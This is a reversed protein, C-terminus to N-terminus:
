VRRNRSLYTGQLDIGTIFGSWAVTLKVDPVDRYIPVWEDGSLAAGAYSLRSGTEGVVSLTAARTDVHHVCLSRVTTRGEVMVDGSRPDRLYFDDLTISPSFTVTGGADAPVGTAIDAPNSADLVELAVSSGRTLLLALKGGVFRVTHLTAGPFVWSHWRPSSRGNADRLYHCVYLKAATAVCLVGLSDDAALALPTGQLYTPVGETLDRVEPPQDAGPPRSYEFVRVAGNVTRLFYIRSGIVIPPVTGDNEFRSVVSFSITTPTVVPDGSLEMQARDSWFYLGGDWYLPTHFGGEPAATARVNIPDDPLLQTITRRFVNTPEGVQSLVFQGGSSFGLRGDQTFLSDVSTLAPLPNNSDDGARRDAWDVPGFSFTRAGGTGSSTLAYPMFAADLEVNVNPAPAEDWVGNHFMYWADDAASKSDGQVRLLYGEECTEPLDEVAPVAGRILELGENDLTDAVVINIAMPDGGSNKVIKLTSGFRTVTYAAAIVGDAQLAELLDQAIRDPTIETRDPTGPAPDDPPFFVEIGAM